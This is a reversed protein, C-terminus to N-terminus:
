EFDPKFSLRPRSRILTVLSRFKPLKRILAYEPDSELWWVDGWGLTISRELMLLANGENGIRMCAAAISWYLESITAAAANHEPLESV